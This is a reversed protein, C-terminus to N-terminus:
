YELSRIGNKDVVKLFFGKTDFPMRENLEKICKNIIDVAEEEELGERHYRDFISMCYYAGYGHAAFPVMVSSALYDTWYLAPTNTKTNYGAVLLNM